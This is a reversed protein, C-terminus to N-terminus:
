SGALVGLFLLVVSLVGISARLIAARRAGRHVASCLLPDNADVAARRRLKTMRRAQVVGVVTAVVLAAAVAAGAAVVGDMPQDRVRVAGAVLATLLAVGGVVGYTRGLDWFFTVRDAATLSRSAVRAVVAITVLGGVWISAALVLVFRVVVDGM